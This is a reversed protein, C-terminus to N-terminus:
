VIINAEDRYKKQYHKLDELVKVMITEDSKVKEGRRYPM